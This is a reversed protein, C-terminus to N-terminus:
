IKEDDACWEVEMSRKGLRPTKGENGMLGMM